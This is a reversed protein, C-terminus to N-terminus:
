ARPDVVVSKPARACNRGPRAAAERSYNDGFMVARTYPDLLVKTGDFRHGRAPDAPGYARYGYLQGPQGGKLFVHWYTFTRHERPDLAIVRAPEPSDMRDFLLLEMAVCNKSYICFNVGEPTVTAGLPYSRGPLVDDVPM